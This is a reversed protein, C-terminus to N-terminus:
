VSSRSSRTKLRKQTPLHFLRVYPSVLSALRTLVLVFRLRTPRFAWLYESAQAEHEYERQLSGRLSPVAWGSVAVAKAPNNM